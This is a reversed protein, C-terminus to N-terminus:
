EWVGTGNAACAADQMTATKSCGKKKWRYGAKRNQVLLNKPTMLALAKQLQCNTAHNLGVSSQSPAPTGADHCCCQSCAPSVWGLLDPGKCLSATQGQARPVFSNNTSLDQVILQLDLASLQAEWRNTDMYTADHQKLQM